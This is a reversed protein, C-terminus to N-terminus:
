TTILSVIKGPVVVSRTITKGDIHRAVNPEKL